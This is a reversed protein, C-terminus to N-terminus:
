FSPRGRAEQTTNISGAPKRYLMNFETKIYYTARESRANVIRHDIIARARLLAALVFIIASM